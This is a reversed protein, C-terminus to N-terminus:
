GADDSDALWRGELMGMIFRADECAELVGFIRTFCYLVGRLEIKGHFSQLNELISNLDKSFTKKGSNQPSFMHFDHQWAEQGYSDRKAITDLWAHMAFLLPVSLFMGAMTLKMFSRRLGPPEPSHFLVNFDILFSISLLIAQKVQESAKQDDECGAGSVAFFM